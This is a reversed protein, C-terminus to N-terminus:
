CPYAGEEVGLLLSACRSVLPCIKRSSALGNSPTRASSRSAEARPQARSHKGTQAGIRSVGLGLPPLGIRVDGPHHRDHRARQAFYKRGARLHSHGSSDTVRNPALHAYEKPLWKVLGVDPENCHGDADIVFNTAM